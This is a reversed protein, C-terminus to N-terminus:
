PKSQDPAAEASEDVEPGADSADEEKHLSLKVLVPRPRQIEFGKRPKHYSCRWSMDVRKGTWEKRNKRLTKEKKAIAGEGFNFSRGDDAVVIFRKNEDKDIAGVTAVLVAEDRNPIALASPLTGFLVEV